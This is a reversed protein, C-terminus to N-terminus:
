NGGTFSIGAATDDTWGDCSPDPLVILNRGTSSDHTAVFIRHGYGDCKTEVNPYHNNFLVVRPATNDADRTDLADERSCDGTGNECHNSGTSCGSVGIALFAASAILITAKHKM